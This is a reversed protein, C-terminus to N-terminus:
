IFEFEGIVKVEPELLLNWRHDVETQVHRILRLIDSATARGCNLIFNAHRHAVQADGISYGKLGTQEILWGAAQTGPNRFVSGCSPMHYPQTRHRHEQHTRTRAMVTEPDHGPQLQFTAQTVLRDRTKQLSSTRYAYGLEEPRLISQEGDLALVHTQLLVDATSSRHAGANMVVAGGVNGPIGVAWEMGSWGREAVKWALSPLPEGAAVTVQALKDDFEIHRLHRTCIVLGPLGRDSVLLNSGAGLLTVPISHDKAWAVSMQLEQLNRPMSFWEAPGGVRYSTYRALPVNPQITFDSHPIKVPSREAGLVGASSQSLPRLAPETLVSLSAPATPLELDTTKPPTM